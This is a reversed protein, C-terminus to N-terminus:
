RSAASRRSNSSSSSSSSSSSLSSSSSSSGSKALEPADTVYPIAVGKNKALVSTGKKQAKKLKALAKKKNYSYDSKDVKMFGNPTYFRLLDENMVRDSLNLETTVQNTAKDITAKQESSL